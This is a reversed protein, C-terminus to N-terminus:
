ETWADLKSRYRRSLNQPRYDSRDRWRRRTSLDVDEFSGTISRQKKRTLRYIGKLRDEYNITHDQTTGGEVRELDTALGLGHAEIRELMWVLCRNALPAKAKRGGGICSHDGPFWSEEIIQGRRTGKRMPTVEFVERKEDIAM